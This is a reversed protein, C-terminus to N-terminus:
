EYYLAVLKEPHDHYFCLGIYSQVSDVAKRSPYFTAAVLLFYLSTAFAGLHSTFLAALAIVMLLFMMQRSCRLARLIPHGTKDLLLPLSVALTLSAASFDHYAYVYLTNVMAIGAAFTFAYLTRFMQHSCMCFHFEQITRFNKKYVIVGLLPLLMIFATLRMVSASAKLYTKCQM